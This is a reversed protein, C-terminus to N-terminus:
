EDKKERNAVEREAELWDQIADGGQGGRALYFEYARAEIRARNVAPPTIDGAQHSRDPTNIPGEAGERVNEEPREARTKAM